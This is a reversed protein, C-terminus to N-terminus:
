VHGERALEIADLILGKAHDVEHGRRLVRCIADRRDVQTEGKKIMRGSLYLHKGGREGADRGKGGERRGERVMGEGEDIENIAQTRGGREIEPSQQRGM